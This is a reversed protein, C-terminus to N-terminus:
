KCCHSIVIVMGWGKRFLRILICTTWTNNVWINWSKTDWHISDVALYRQLDGKNDGKRLQLGSPLDVACYLKRSSIIMLPLIIWYLIVVFLQIISHMVHVQLCCAFNWIFNLWGSVFSCINTEIFSSVIHQFLKYLHCKPILLKIAVKFCWYPLGRITINVKFSFCM